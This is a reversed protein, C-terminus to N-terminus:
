YRWRCVPEFDLFEIVQEEALPDFQTSGLELCRAQAEQVQAPDRSDWVVRVRRRLTPFIRPIPMKGQTVEHRWVAKDVLTSM